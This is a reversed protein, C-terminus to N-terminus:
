RVSKDHYKLNKYPTNQLELDFWVVNKGFSVVILNDGYPHIDICSNWNSGSQLRKIM